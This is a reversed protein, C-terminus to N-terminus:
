RLINSRTCRALTVVVNGVYLGAAVAFVLAVRRVLPLVMRFGAGAIIALMPIVFLVHRIGDYIRVGQM